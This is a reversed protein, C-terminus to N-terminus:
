SVRAAIGHVEIGSGAFGRDDLPQDGVMMLAAGHSVGVHAVDVDIDTGVEHRDRTPLMPCAPAFLSLCIAMPARGARWSLSGYGFKVVVGGAAVSAAPALGRPRHSLHRRRDNRSGRAKCIDGTGLGCFM